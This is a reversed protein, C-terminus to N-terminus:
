YILYKGCNIAHTTPVRNIADTPHPPAVREGGYLGRYGSDFFDSYDRPNRAGAKHAEDKLENDLFRMKGRYKIRKGEETELAEQEDALEQRRTQVAFYTQAAAIEEKHSDGSMAVLYCAYRTMRYDVVEQRRGKGSIIPKGSRTFNAEPNNGSNECAKIARQITDEFKQWKAYGLLGQLDRASWYEHGYKDYQRIADFPSSVFDDSM